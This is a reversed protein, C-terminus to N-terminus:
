ITLFIWIHDNSTLYWSKSDRQYFSIFNVWATSYFEDICVNDIKLKNSDYKFFRLFKLHFESWNLYVVHWCVISLIWNYEKALFVSLLLLNLIDEIEWDVNNSSNRINEKNLFCFKQNLFQKDFYIIWENIKARIIKIM